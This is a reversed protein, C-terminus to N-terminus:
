LTIKKTLYRKKQWLLINYQNNEEDYWMIRLDEEATDGLLTEDYTFTITAEEFESTSEINVPVGILGVVGSSLTDRNYTNEITTTENIYGTGEMTVSVNTIQPREPSVIEESLTQLTKEKNDPIGNGNSDIKLPDMGLMIESGDNIGDMDSDPILPNTGYLFIEDYDSLSDWDTDPNMNHTQYNCEQLFSLKDEDLDEDGDFIGDDDTDPKLPNFGYMLETYDDIGDMDTDKKYPDTGIFLENENTLLDNDYDNLFKSPNVVIQKIKLNEPCSNVSGPNAAFELKLIEGAKINANHGANKVVYHNGSRSLIEGASFRDINYAFDFEIVWDEITENSKNTISIEGNFAQKWDSTVKFSMQYSESSVDVDEMLLPFSNPLTANVNCSATFGFNVSRGV